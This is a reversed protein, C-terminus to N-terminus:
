FKVPPYYVCSFLVIFFPSPATKHSFRELQKKLKQLIEDFSFKRLLHSIQARYNSILSMDEVMIDVIRWYMQENKSLRFAIRYAFGGSVIETEVESWNTETRTELFRIVIEGSEDLVKEVYVRSVLAIFLPAFEHARFAFARYHAGLVRRAIEESDCNEIFLTELIRSKEERTLSPNKITELSHATLDRIIEEPSAAFAHSFVSLFLVIAIIMRIQQM